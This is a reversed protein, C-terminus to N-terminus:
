ARHDKRTHVPSFGMDSATQRPALAGSKWPELQLLFRRCAASKVVGLQAEVAPSRGCARIAANFETIAAAWEKNTLLKQAAQLKEAFEARRALWHLVGEDHAKLPRSRSSHKFTM